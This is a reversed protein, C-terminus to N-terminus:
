FSAPISRRHMSSTSRSLTRNFDCNNTTDFFIDVSMWKLGPCSTCTEFPRSPSYESHASRPPAAPASGLYLVLELATEVRQGDSHASLCLVSRIGVRMKVADLLPKSVVGMVSLERGREGRARGGELRCQVGCEAGGDAGEIGISIQLHVTCVPHEAFHLYRDSIINRDHAARSRRARDHM